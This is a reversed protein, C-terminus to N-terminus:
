CTSFTLFGLVIGALWQFMDELLGEKNLVRKVERQPACGETHVADYDLISGQISSWGQLVVCFDDCDWGCELGRGFNQVRRSFKFTSCLTGVPGIKYDLNVVIDKQGRM